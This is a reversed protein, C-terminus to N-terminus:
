SRKFLLVVWASFEALSSKFLQMMAPRMVDDLLKPWNKARTPLSSLPAEPGSGRAASTSALGDRDTDMPLMLPPVYLKQRLWALLEVPVVHAATFSSIFLM